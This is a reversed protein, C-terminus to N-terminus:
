EQKIRFVSLAILLANVMALEYDQILVIEQGWLSLLTKKPFYILTYIFFSAAACDATGGLFTMTVDFLRGWPDM